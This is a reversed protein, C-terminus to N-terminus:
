LKITRGGFTFYERDIKLENLSDVISKMTSITNGFMNTYYRYIDAMYIDDISINMEKEFITQLKDINDKKM